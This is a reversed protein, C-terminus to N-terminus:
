MGGVGNELGLEICGLVNRLAETRFEAPVEGALSHLRQAIASKDVLGKSDLAEVLAVYAVMFGFSSDMQDGFTRSLIQQFDEMAHSVANVKDVPQQQEM